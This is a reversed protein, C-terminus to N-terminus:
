EMWANASPFTYILQPEHKPRAAVKVGFTMALADGLDPSALGRDKMSEKKELQIQNQLHNHAV